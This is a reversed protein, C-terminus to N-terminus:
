KKLRGKKLKSLTRTNVSRTPPAVYDVDYKKNEFADLLDQYAQQPSNGVRFTEIPNGDPDLFRDPVGCSVWHLNHPSRVTMARYGDRYGYYFVYDCIEQVLRFAAPKCTPELREFTTVAEDELDDRRLGKKKTVLPRTKDHSLFVVCKDSEQLLSFLAGFTTTIEDWLKYGQAYDSPDKVGYEQCVHDFCALYAGDITDIVCTQFDDSELFLEVYEIFSEWNLKPEGKQPLQVIPLNRRGREFMFALADPFQSALSTKGVGKSGYIMTISETLETIPVNAETPLSRGKEPSSLSKKKRSAPPRVKTVKAM